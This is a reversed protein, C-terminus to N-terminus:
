SLIFAYIKNESKFNERMDFTSVLWEDRKLSFSNIQKGKLILLKPVFQYLTKYNIEKDIISNTIKLKLNDFYFYNSDENYFRSNNLDVIIQENLYNVVNKLKKNKVIFPEDFNLAM